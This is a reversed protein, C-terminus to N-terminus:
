KGAGTIEITFDDIGKIRASIVGFRSLIAQGGHYHRVDLAEQSSLKDRRAIVM